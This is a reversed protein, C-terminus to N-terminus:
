KTASHTLVYHATENCVGFSYEGLVSTVDYDGLSPKDEAMFPRVTFWGVKESDLFFTKTTPCMWDILVEVREAVPTTIYHIVRGGVEDRETIYKDEYMQSFKEAGWPSTVILDPVAGASYCTRLATHVAPKKIAVASSGATNTTIFNELGGAMGRASDTPQQIKGYYAMYGLLLILQGARGRSGVETRGGILKALHYAKTDSVGYDVAINQGRDVQVSEEITQTYNFPLSITTTYGITYNDGHLKAIGRISVTAASTHTAATTGGAGRQAITVTGGADASSVVMYENDIQIVTGSHVYTPNALQISLGDTTTINASITTALPAMTDELWEMKKSNGPPWNQMSLKSEMNMPLRKILPAFTWDIMKVAKAVIKRQIGTDTFPTRKLAM